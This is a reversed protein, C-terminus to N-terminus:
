NVVVFDGGYGDNIMQWLKGLDPPLKIPPQQLGLTFLVRKFDEGGGKLFKPGTVLGRNLELSDDGWIILFAREGRVSPDAAAQLISLGSSPRDIFEVDPDSASAEGKKKHRLRRGFVSYGTVNQIVGTDGLRGLGPVQVYTLAAYQIETLNTSVETTSVYFRAGFNTIGCGM